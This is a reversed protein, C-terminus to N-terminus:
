ELCIVLVLVHDVLLDTSLEVWVDNRLLLNVSSRYTDKGM